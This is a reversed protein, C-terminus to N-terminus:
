VNSDILATESVTNLMIFANITSWSLGQTKILAIRKLKGRSNRVIYKVYYIGKDNVM